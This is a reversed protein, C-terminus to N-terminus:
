EFVGAQGRVLATAVQADGQILAAFHTAQRLRQQLQHAQFVPEHLRHQLAERQGIQHLINELFEFQAGFGPLHM